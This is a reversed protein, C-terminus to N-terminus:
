GDSDAELKGRRRGLRDVGVFFDVESEVVAFNDFFVGSGVTSGMSARSGIKLRVGSCNWSGEVCGARDGFLSEAFGIGNIGAGSGFGSGNILSSISVISSTSGDVDSECVESKSSGGIADFLADAIGLALTDAEIGGSTTSVGRRAGVTEAVGTGAMLEIGEGVKCADKSDSSGICSPGTSDEIKKGREESLADEVVEASGVNDVAGDIDAETSIEADTDCGAKSIMITGLVIGDSSGSTNNVSDPIGNALGERM